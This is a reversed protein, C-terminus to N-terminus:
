VATSDPYCLAKSDAWAPIAVCIIFLQPCSIENKQAETEEQKFRLIIFVECSHGSFLLHM